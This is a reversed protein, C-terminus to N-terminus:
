RAGEREMDALCNPCLGHSLESAAQRRFYDELTDWHGDPARVSRCWACVPVIARMDRLERLVYWREHLESRLQHAAALGLAFTATLLVGVEALEAAPLAKYVAFDLLSCATLAVGAFAQLRVSQPLLFVGFLLIIDAELGAGPGLHGVGTLYRGCTLGVIGLTGAAVAARVPRAPAGRDLLVLAAAFCAISAARLAPQLWAQLGEFRLDNLFFASSSAVFLWCM